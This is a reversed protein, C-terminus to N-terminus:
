LLKLGTRLWNFAQEEDRLAARAEARTVERFRVQTGPWARAMLPLDASIVHGIQPYGGITQREALLVIPQGDPPVQVSGCAVPQSRMQRSDNTILAEGSLRVGMRDAKATTQYTTERFRARADDSFWNEQVGALFRLTIWGRGDSHGVHWDGCGPVRGPEGVALRDGARLARGHHGGFGARLDTAASGLLMEVRIGGAVALCARVGDPLHSFDATEGDTVARSRGMGGVLAVTTAGHFRLVPGRVCCELVAAGEPNGVMLNAARLAHGDVAGGPSVGSIGHGQRGGDQVTTLGGGDIVEIWRDSIRAEAETEEVPEPNMSSIEVFRLTDGPQLLSPRERRPDFLRVSTRGLVQWGGPSAFPYIGAQGAAVAVSGAAVALQPTSKRPVDLEKPLGTLYPFGPSFGIAAVSYEAGSHLAIVQNPSIGAAEAVEDLDPGCAGGYVVPIEHVEGAFRVDVPEVARIWEAIEDGTEGRFYVALSDFSVVLDLVGPPQENSLAEMWGKVRSASLMEPFELLWASDGLAKLTMWGDNVMRRVAALSPVDRM